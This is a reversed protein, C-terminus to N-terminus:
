AGGGREESGEEQHNRCVQVLSWLSSPVLTRRHRRCVNVRWVFEVGTGAEGNRSDTKRTSSWRCRNKTGTKTEFKTSEKKNRLNSVKSSPGQRKEEEERSAFVNQPHDDEQTRLQKIVAQPHPSRLFRTSAKRPAVNEPNGM